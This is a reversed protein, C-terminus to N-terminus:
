SGRGGALRATGRPRRQTGGKLRLAPKEVVLYSVTAALVSMAVVVLLVRVFGGTFPVLGSREVYEDLWFEHWLYIGYSVLGVLQLARNSLLRRILGQDQPGFVGPLLLFFACLGYFFQRAMQEAATYEILGTPLGLQTSVVWFSLGACLWSAAPSWASTLLRPPSRRHHELWASALALGMGMAFLDLQAPLWTNYMGNLSTDIALLVLRYAVSMAYLGVLVWIEIRARREESMAPFRLVAAYLPLFLYFSIETALTWSQLIPGFVHDPSYIQALGYWLLFSRLDPISGMGVIVVVTLALWYAPYIRLARRWLYPGTRPASREELRAVVFPRYLLFGSIVFFISVGVDLRAFYQGLPSRLNAGTVFSVHTVVVAVVAVARYGDFTPFHHRGSRRAVSGFGGADVESM